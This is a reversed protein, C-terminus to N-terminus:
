EIMMVVIFPFLLLIIWGLIIIGIIKYKLEWQSIFKIAFYVLTMLFFTYFVFFLKINRISFFFLAIVFSVMFIVLDYELIKDKTGFQGIKTISSLYNEMENINEIYNLITIKNIKNTYIHFNNERDKLIKKIKDVKINRSSSRSELIIEQDNCEMSFSEYERKATKYSILFAFSICILWIIIAGITTEYFIIMERWSGTIEKLLILLAIFLLGGILSALILRGKRYDNVRSMDYIFVM